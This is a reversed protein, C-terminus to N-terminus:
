GEQATCCAAERMPARSATLHMADKITPLKILVDVAGGEFGANGYAALLLYQICLALPYTIPVAVWIAGCLFVAAVVEEGSAQEVELRVTRVM